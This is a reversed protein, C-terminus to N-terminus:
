LFLKFDILSLNNGPHSLRTIRDLYITRAFFIVTLMHSVGLNKWSDFIPGVFEKLFKDFYM